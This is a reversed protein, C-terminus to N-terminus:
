GSLEQYHPLVVEAAEAPTVDPYLVRLALIACAGGVLQAVVFGPVSAPAIGAFTDSFMRGVTIAPNAFSASSTFFYAAGIYAGVAAPAANARRTRALSFIVLLLGATAIAESLLHASSARHHTSVSVAALAFMGNATVAGLACGAVQAPVYALADRWRIGGFSADAISVVPNFHGGSVPGFMLIITFLGAATAAANEFLELGVDYPSLTQAAIGSGIVLAALFASGLLEAILRRAIPPTNM